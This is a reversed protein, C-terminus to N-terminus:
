LDQARTFKAAERRNRFGLKKLISHVHRKVTNESISLREAIERNSWGFELEKIVELERMTLASPISKSAYDKVMMRSFEHLVRTMQSRSLAAEGRVLARISALLATFSINKQLYGKAGSHLTPFLYDEPKQMTLIVIKVQPIKSLIAKIADIGSGDKFVVDMLIIDPRLEIAKEVGRNVSGVQGVVSFDPLSNLLAAMAERFLEHDDILLVNTVRTKPTNM